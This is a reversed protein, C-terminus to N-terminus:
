VPGVIAGIGFLVGLGHIMYKVFLIPDHLHPQNFYEEEKRKQEMRARIWREKRERERRYIERAWADEQSVSEATGGRTRLLYEYAERVQQFKERAAPTPNRDPHYRMALRRYAAKVQKGSAGPTLGLVAYPDIVSVTCAKSCTIWEGTCFM